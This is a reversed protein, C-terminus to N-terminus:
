LVRGYRSLSQEIEASLEPFAALAPDLLAVNIADIAAAINSIHQRADGAKLHNNLLHIANQLETSCRFATRVLNWAVNKDM